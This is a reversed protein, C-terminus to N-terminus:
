LASGLVHLKMGLWPSANVAPTAVCANASLASSEVDASGSRVFMSM